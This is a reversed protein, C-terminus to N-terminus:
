DRPVTKFNLLPIDIAVFLRFSFSAKSDLTINQATVTRLQPGFQGGLGISVPINAFGRVYYIGPAFINELKIQPLEETMDDGFRFTTIAGLDVLPFFWTSSGREDYTNDEKKTYLGKSFAIGIPASLAFTPKYEDLDGNFELGGSLGLYANLAINSKTRKKISASGAPLAISEIIQQVEDSSDAEAVTAIFTGYKLFEQAFESENLKTKDILIRVNMIASSYNAAIIDEYINGALNALDVYQQIKAKQGASFELGFADFQSADSIFTTMGNYLKFYDTNDPQTGAKKLEAFNEIASNIQNLDAM